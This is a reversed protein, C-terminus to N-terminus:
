WGLHAYKLHQQLETSTPILYGLTGYHYELPTHHTILLEQTISKYIIFLKHSM